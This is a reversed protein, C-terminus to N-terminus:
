RQRMELPPSVVADQKFLPGHNDLGEFRTDPKTAESRGGPSPPSVVITGGSPTTSPQINSGPDGPESRLPTKTCEKGEEWSICIASATQPVSSSVLLVALLMITQSQSSM